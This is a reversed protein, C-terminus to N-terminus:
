THGLTVALQLLSQNMQLLHFLHNVRRRTKAIKRLSVVDLRNLDSDDGGASLPFAHEAYVLHVSQIYTDFHAHHKGPLTHSREHGNTSSFFVSYKPAGSGLSQFHLSNSSLSVRDFIIVRAISSEVPDRSLRANSGNM